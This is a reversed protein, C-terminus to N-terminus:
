TNRFIQDHSGTALLWLELHDNDIRYVLLWDSEIHLERLGKRNGKLAHDKYKQRLINIEQDILLGLVEDIKNMDYHKKKLAKYNREFPPAVRIEM